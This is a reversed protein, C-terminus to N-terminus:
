DVVIVEIWIHLDIDEFVLAYGNEDVYKKSPSHLAYPRNNELNYQQLYDEVACKASQLAHSYTKYLHKFGTDPLPRDENFIQVIYGLINM